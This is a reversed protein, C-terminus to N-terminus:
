CRQRRARLPEHLAQRRVHLRDVLLRRVHLRHAARERELADERASLGLERAHKSGVLLLLQQSLQRAGRRCGYSPLRACIPKRGGAAAIAHLHASRRAGPATTVRAAGAGAVTPSQAARRAVVSAM